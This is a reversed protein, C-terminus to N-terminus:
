DREPQDSEEGKPEKPMEVGCARLASLVITLKADSSEACFTENLVTHPWRVLEIESQGEHSIWITAQWDEDTRKTFRDLVAGADAWSRTPSWSEMWGPMMRWDRGFVNEYVLKDLADLWETHTM